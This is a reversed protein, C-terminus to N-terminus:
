ARGEFRGDLEGCVHQMWLGGQEVGSEARLVPAGGTLVMKRFLGRGEQEETPRVKMDFWCKMDGFNSSAGAGGM